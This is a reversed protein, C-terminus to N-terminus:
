AAGGLIAATYIASRTEADPRRLGPIASYVEAMPLLRTRGFLCLDTAAYHACIRALEAQEVETRQIVRVDSFEGQQVARLAAPYLALKYTTHRDTM